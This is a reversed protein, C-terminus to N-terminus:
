PLVVCVRDTPTWEGLVPVPLETWRQGVVTAQEMSTVKEQGGDQGPGHAVRVTATAPDGPPTGRGSCCWGTAGHSGPAPGLGGPPDRPPGAGVRPGLRVPRTAAPGRRGPRARGPRRRARWWPPA